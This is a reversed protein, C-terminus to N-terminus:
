ELSRLVCRHVSSREGGFSGGVAARGRATVVGASLKEMHLALVGVLVGVTEEAEDWGLVCVYMYVYVDQVANHM